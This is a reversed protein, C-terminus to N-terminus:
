CQSQRCHPPFLRAWRQMTDRYMRLPLRKEDKWLLLRATQAAWLTDWDEANITVSRMRKEVEAVLAKVAKKPGEPETSMFQEVYPTVDISPGYEVQVSSRYKTKSVYNIGCIAITM